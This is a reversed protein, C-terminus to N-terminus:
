RRTSRPRAGRRTCSMSPTQASSAACRKSRARTARRSRPRWRARRAERLRRRVRRATAGGARTRGCAYALEGSTELGYALVERYDLGRALEISESCRRGRRTSGDSRYSQARLQAAHGLARRPRRSASSRRRGSPTRRPRTSSAACRRSRASTRWSSPSGTRVNRQARLREVSEEYLAQAGSSTARASRSRAWSESAAASRTRTAPRATSSSRRRGGRRRRRLDGQRYAFTAGHTSRRPAYPLSIEDRRELSANSAAAGEAIHGRVLWFQRMAVALAAEDEVRDTAAAWDIAARLNDHEVDLADYAAEAESGAVIRGNEAEAYNSSSAYTGSGRRTRWVPRACASSRTCASRRSCRSASAARRVLSRELLRTVGGGAVAEATEATFGGAFVGLRRFVDQEAPTLADFSWDLTARLADAAAAAPRARRRQPRRAVRELRRAITTSRSCSAARRPSSSRSRCGTSGAASRPSARRREREDLEFRPISLRARASSSRVADNAALEEFRRRTPRRRSRRCRTSTSATCGYRRAARRSSALRPARPSCSARDLTSATSCSSSTTSCSCCRATACSGRRARARGRRRRAGARDDARAAGPRAVRRWTSSRRATACSRRSSRPSPSRSGRRARAARGPSRSSGCTTARLLAAVAAVELRRGVLPTPPAPLARRAAGRPAPAALAPDQRLM